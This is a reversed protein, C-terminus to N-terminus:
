FKTINFETRRNQQHEEESCSVGDSCNNLLELEGYGKGVVRSREIGKSIIYEASAKARKDSLQLNSFSSGRSDSHSGLEITIGPNEKMIAVVKDLETAADKRIIAKGLDFFIPKIDILKGIDTGIDIKAMDLKMLNHLNIQGPKELAANYTFTKGLYGEKALKVQYSIRDSINRGLLYYIFDGTEGTITELVVKGSMNDTLTVKVGSLLERSNDDRILAYLNFGNIKRMLIDFVWEPGEEEHTIFKKVTEQFGEKEVKLQYNKGAEVEEFLFSGDDKCVVSQLVKGHSNQLQVKVGAFPSRDTADEVRGAITYSSLLPKKTTFSFVDDNGAGGPRNSSFYGALGTEDTILGFDDFRTNIPAGPNIVEGKEGALLDIGFVDLGGLGAHGNSAFYLTQDQHLFPFMEDGETNIKDGLNVPFQWGGDRFESKYLDTKGYGGPRDSAFYLTLGDKTIAPHGTSFENSNFPLPVPESWTLSDTKESFYLKLKTVGDSSKGAKTGYNNRTFIMKTGNHYVVVPGEHYPTNIRGHFIGASETGEESHYYLDLFGSKDWQFVEGKAASGSQRGSVFLIGEKFFAPSFDAADSNFPAAAITVSAANKTELEKRKAIGEMKREPRKDQAVERYKLYWKQAEQYKGTSSLAEAYALFHEAKFVSDKADVLSYWKETEAPKNLMRFSEAIKIKLLDDPGDKKSAKQYAEVADQYAFNKFYQDGQKEASMLFMAIGGSQAFTRLSFLLCILLTCYINKM